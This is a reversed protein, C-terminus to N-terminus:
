GAELIEDLGVGRDIGAIGAARQDVCRAVEIPMLLVIKEWVPPEFPM